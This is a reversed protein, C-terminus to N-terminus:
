YTTYTHLNCKMRNKFNTFPRIWPILILGKFASNFGMWKSANSPAWRIRWTLLTLTSVQTNSKSITYAEQLTMTNKIGVLWTFCKGLKYRRIYKWNKIIRHLYYLRAVLFTHRWVSLARTWISMSNKEEIYRISKDVDVSAELFPNRIVMVHCNGNRIPAHPPYSNTHSYKNASPRCSSGGPQLLPM